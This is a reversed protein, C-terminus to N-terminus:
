FGEHNAAVDWQFVSAPALSGDPMQRSYEFSVADYVLSVSELSADDTAAGAGSVSTVMVDRFRVVLYQSPSEGPRRAAFVADPSHKGTACALLLGASAADVHHTFHFDQFTVKGARGVGGGGGGFGGGGPNSAGWSWSLMEIEDPHEADVSEGTIGALKLFMPSTM